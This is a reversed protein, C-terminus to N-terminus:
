DEANERMMREVSKVANQILFVAYVFYPGFGSGLDDTAIQFIFDSLIRIVIYIKIFHM